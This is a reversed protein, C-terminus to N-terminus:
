KIFEVTGPSKVAYLRAPRHQGNRKVEGTDTLCQYALIRKRFNRKDLPTDTIIEYVQQLESLTFRAPM